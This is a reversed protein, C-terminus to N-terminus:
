REWQIGFIKPDPTPNGCKAFDTWLRLLNRSTYKDGTTFVTEVPIKHAKFLMSLEDSHAVGYKPPYYNVGISQGWLKFVFHSCLGTKIINWFKFVASM